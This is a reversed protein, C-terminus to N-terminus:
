RQQVRKLARLTKPDEELEYSKQYSIEALQDNKDLESAFGMYYYAQAKERKSSSGSIVNKAAQICGPYDGSKLRSKALLLLTEWDNKELSAQKELMKSAKAFDGTASVAKIEEAAQQKRKSSDIQKTWLTYKGNEELLSLDSYIRKKNQSKPDSKGTLFGQFFILDQTFKIGISDPHLGLGDVSENQIWVDISDTHVKALRGEGDLTFIRYQKGTSKAINNLTLILLPYTKGTDTTHLIFHHKTNLLSEIEEEYETTPDAPFNKYLGILTHTPTRCKEKKDPAIHVSAVVLEEKGLMTKQINQNCNGIEFEQNHQLYRLAFDPNPKATQAHTVHSLFYFLLLAIARIYMINLHEFM